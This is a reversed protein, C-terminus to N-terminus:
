GNYIRSTRCAEAHVKRCFEPSFGLAKGPDAITTPELIRKRGSVTYFITVAAVYSGAKSAHNNDAEYLTTAPETLMMRTFVEGVPAFQCEMERCFSQYADTIIRQWERRNAPAFPLYFFIPTGTSDAMEKLAAAGERFSTEDFEAGKGQVIVADYGGHRLNFSVDARKAHFLLNKGGATLMTIQNKQGMATFLASVMAPMDNYYTHSNGIFLLRM